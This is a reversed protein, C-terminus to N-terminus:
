LSLITPRATQQALSIAVQSALIAAVQRALESPAHGPGPAAELVFRGYTRDRWVVPLQLPSEPLGNREVDWHADHWSVEGDAQLVPLNALPSSDFTCRRLGLVETLRASVEAIVDAPPAAGAVTETTEEIASLYGADTLAQHRQKRAQVAIATVAAGVLVLLATTEVDARSTITFREYPRTLFFDFWVAASVSALVGSSWAGNAAVGVIVVVLILAADDNSLSGRFLALVAAALLPVVLAAALALRDRHM